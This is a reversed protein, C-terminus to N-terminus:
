EFQVACALDNIMKMTTTYVYGTGKELGWPELVTQAYKEQFARVAGDTARDFVGDTRITAGEINKLFRQLNGVDLADGSGARLPQTILPSCAGATGAVQVGFADALVVRKPTRINEHDNRWLNVTVDPAGDASLTLNIAHHWSADVSVVTAVVSRCGRSNVRLVVDNHDMDSGSDEFRIRHIDDGISEVKAFPSDMTRVSGDPNVISASYSVSACDLPVDGYPIADQSTPIGDGDDDADEVNVRGDDDIDETNSEARDAYGDGDADGQEDRTLIGDGDDDPDLYRPISSSPARRRPYSSRGGSSGSSVEQATPIGDGDDDADENNMLGDADTDAINSEQEDPVTDGDTDAVGEESTPIGDNDDDADVIDPSGDSDADVLSEEVTGISEEETSIGDGDDDSDLVNIIGDHDTDVGVGSVAEEEATPVTDGDDDADVANLAGDDDTDTIDSELYNPISDGDVDDDLATGDADVDEEATPTADGDDDADLYDVIGDADTDPEIITTSDDELIIENKTPVTDGDDDTDRLDSTGDGDTDPLPTEESGEATDCIGDGDTDLSGSFCASVTVTTDGAEAQGQADTEVSSDAPEQESVEVSADPAVEVEPEAEPEPEGVNVSADTSGDATSDAPTRTDTETTTDTTTDASTDDAAPPADVLTDATTNAPAGLALVRLPVNLLFLLAIALIRNKWSADTSHTM